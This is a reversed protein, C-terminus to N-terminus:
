ITSINEIGILSIVPYLTEPLHDDSLHPGTNRRKWTIQYGGNWVCVSKM